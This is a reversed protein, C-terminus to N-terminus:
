VDITVAVMEMGNDSVCGLWGPYRGRADAEFALGIVRGLGRM